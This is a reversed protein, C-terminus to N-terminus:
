VVHVRDQEGFASLGHLRLAYEARLAAAPAAPDFALVPVPTGNISRWRPEPMREVTTTLELLLAVHASTVPLKAIGVGRIELLGEINPPPSAILRNSVGTLSVADDGILKAGRDILEMALTSKGAGSHGEILIATGGIAVASGRFILRATM